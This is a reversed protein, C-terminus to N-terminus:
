TGQQHFLWERTEDDYLEGGPDGTGIGALQEGIESGVHDLDLCGIAAVGHAGSRRLLPRM